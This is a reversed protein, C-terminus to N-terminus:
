PTHVRHFQAALPQSYNTVWIVGGYDPFANTWFMWSFPGLNTAIDVSYRYGRIGPFGYVLLKPQPNVEIIPGDIVTVAAPASTVSGSYNTVVVAYTGSNGPQPSRFLLSGNTQQRMEQGNKFWQYGFPATGGAVAELAVPTQVVVDMPQPQTVLVPPVAPQGANLQYSLQAQGRAGNVGGVVVFYNAGAAAPFQVASTGTGTGGNNNDCAVLTLDAYSTLVGSYTFVGLLTAYSSGSTDISMSGSAPAQYAFWYAAGPPVGCILPANPDVLASTTDFIQTGNYGLSVGAATAKPMLGSAAADAMKARALVKPQGESNVQIEVSQSFFSDDNLNFKLAYLGLNTQQLSPIVLTPSVSDDDSGAVPVGNLYWRFDVNPSPLFNVTLILPDGLRLSQDGPVGTVTPQLNSSALFNLQLQVDGVAGNFGDVSIQYTWGANAGFQVQSTELGGYDDNAAVPELRRLPPDDGNGLLYVGLLTDFSSGATSLTVLGAGPAQWSIWLSHGGMKRAILPEGAEVTANSNSGYLTMPAGTLLPRDAFQDTFGQAAARCTL